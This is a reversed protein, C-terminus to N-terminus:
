FRPCFYQWFKKWAWEFLFCLFIKLKAKFFLFHFLILVNKRNCTERSLRSKSVRPLEANVAVTWCLFRPMSWTTNLNRSVVVKPPQNYHWNPTNRVHFKDFSYIFGILNTNLLIHRHLLINLCVLHSLLIGIKWLFLSFQDLSTYFTLSFQTSLYLLKM